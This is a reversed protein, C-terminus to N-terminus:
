EIEERQSGRAIEENEAMMEAQQEDWRETDSVEHRESMMYRHYREDESEHNMEMWTDPDSVESLTSRCYRHYRQEQTEVAIESDDSDAAQEQNPRRLHGFLNMGVQFGQFAQGLEDRVQQETHRFRPSEENDTLDTMAILSDKMHRHQDGSPQDMFMHIMEVLGNRRESNVLVNNGRHIREQCRFHLWVLMAEARFMVDAFIGPYKLGLSRSNAEYRSSQPETSPEMPGEEAQQEPEPETEDTPVMYAVLAVTFIFGCIVALVMPSQIGHWWSLAKFADTEFALLSSFMSGDAIGLVSWMSLVRLFQKAFKNSQSCPMHPTTDVMNERVARVQHKLLEKAEM